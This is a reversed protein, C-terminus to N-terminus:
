KSAPKGLYEAADIAQLIKECRARVEASKTERLTQRVAGAAPPGIRVLDEFAAQRRRFDDEGLRGILRRVRGDLAAAVELNPHLAVGVRVIEPPKPTVALPLMRDYEARPLLYLATLGPREFFGKRWIKLLGDAEDAYLGAATLAQRIPAAAKAPLDAPPVRRLSIKATEGPAIPGVHHAFGAAKGQRAQRRDIVFLGALPFRASNRVTVSEAATAVCRLLGPAPVLGDYYLFRETESRNTSWPRGRILRSGVVTVPAADKVARAQKLWCGEPLDFETVAQDKGPPLRLVPGARVPPATKGLRARWTLSRFAGPKRKMGDDVPSACAPWWVVPAGASFTVTVEVDLGPRNTYFYVIPKDVTMPAWRLRRTPFQRYFFKPLSEWEAKRGANAYALDAYSTFVGWEHVRLDDRKLPRVVLSVAPARITGSWAGAAQEASPGAYIKERLGNTIREGVLYRNALKTGTYAFALTYKGPRDLRFFKRLDEVPRRWVAGAPIPKFSRHNPRCQASMRQRLAKGGPGTVSLKARRTYQVNFLDAVYRQRDSANRVEIVAEIPEGLTFEARVLFRCQLGDHAKGWPTEKEAAGSAGAWLVAALLVITRCM